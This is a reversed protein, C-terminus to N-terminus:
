GTVEEEVVSQTALAETAERVGVSEVSMKIVPQKTRML